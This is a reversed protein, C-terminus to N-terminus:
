RELLITLVYHTSNANHMYIRTNYFSVCIYSKTLLMVLKTEWQDANLKWYDKHNFLNIYIQIQDQM